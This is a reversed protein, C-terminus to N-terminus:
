AERGDGVSYLVYSRGVRLSTKTKLVEAIAECAEVGLSNGGLHVEEVGELEKLEGM